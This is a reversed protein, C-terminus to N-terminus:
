LMSNEISFKFEYFHSIGHPDPIPFSAALLGVQLNAKEVLGNETEDTRRCNTM